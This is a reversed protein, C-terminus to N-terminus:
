DNYRGLMWLARGPTGDPSFFIYRRRWNVVVTGGPLHIDAWRGSYITVRGGLCFLPYKINPAIRHVFWYGINRKTAELYTQLEENTMTEVTTHIYEM